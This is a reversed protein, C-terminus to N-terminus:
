PPGAHITGVAEALFLALPSRCPVDLIIEVPGHVLKLRQPFLVRLLASLDRL